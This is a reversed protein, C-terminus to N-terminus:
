LLSSKGNGPLPDVARGSGALEIFEGALTVIDEVVNSGHKALRGAICEMAPLRLGIDMIRLVGQELQRRVVEVPLLALGGGKCIMDVITPVSNMACVRHHVIGERSLLSCLIAHPVTNRSFTMIPMSPMTKLDVRGGQGSVLHGSCVLAMEFDCLHTETLMPSNTAGIYFGVDLMGKLIKRQIEDSVNVDLDVTVQQYKDSIVCMLSPLWTHVATEMTGIRIIGHEENHGKITAVAAERLSLIREAYNVLTVGVPTLSVRKGSRYFIRADLMAELQSIRASVAPQTMRLAEAAAKFSGLRDVWIVAELSKFDM